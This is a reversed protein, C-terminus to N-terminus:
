GGSKDSLASKLENIESKLDRVLGLIDEMERHVESTEVEIDDLEGLIEAQQETQQEMLEARMANQEQQLADVILAIFLNLVAFSALFMFTLFFVWAYPNGDDIVKQVVEFRWGDLTMVQFMTYASSPLDGFLLAVEPNDTNGFLYTGMVAGIYIFLTLIAVVAGMDPLAKLLAETIRRLVPVFQLMRMVRLVRMARLITIQDGGPLIAVGVVIFDFLNWGSKFFHHRYAILKALIEVVFIYTISQDILKLASVLSPSMRDAYTLAGLIVANIIILTIISTRFIDTEVVRELRSAAQTRDLPSPINAETSMRKPGQKCGESLILKKRMKSLTALAMTAAFQATDDWLFSKEQLQCNEM